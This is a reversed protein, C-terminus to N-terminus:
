TAVATFESPFSLPYEFSAFTEIGFYCRGGLGHPVYRPSGRDASQGNVAATGELPLRGCQVIIAVLCEGVGM